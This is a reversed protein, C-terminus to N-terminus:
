DVAFCCLVVRRDGGLMALSLGSKSRYLVRWGAFIIFTYTCFQPRESGAGVGTLRHLALVMVPM